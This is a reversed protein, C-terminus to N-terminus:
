ENLRLHLAFGGIEDKLYVVQLRGDERLARTHPAFHIGRRTLYAALVEPAPTNLAIHGKTGLYTGKVVEAIDGVFYAGPAEKIPQAFLAALQQATHLADQADATNIGVHAVHIDFIAAWVSQLTRAATTAAGDSGLWDAPVDLVLGASAPLHALRAASADPSQRFRFLTTQPARSKAAELVREVQAPADLLVQTLGTRHQWPALPIAPFEPLGTGAEGQRPSPSLSPLGAQEARHPDTLLITLDASQAQALRQTSTRDLHTADVELAPVSAASALTLLRHVDTPGTPEAHLVIGANSLVTPISTPDLTTSM